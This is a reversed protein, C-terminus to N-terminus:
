FMELRYEIDVQRGAVKALSGSITSRSIIGYAPDFTDEDNIRLGDLYISSAGSSKATAVIGVRNIATGDPSGIPNLLMNNLSISMIKNGTTTNPSFTAEYYDNASSYFKVKISSINADAQYYALSLTDNVSYGSIDLANLDVHYEKSSSQSASITMFYQGIRPSHSSVSQVMTPSVGNSDFWITNDEFDSIFKSDYFNQSKSSVPYLGIEDIIGVVQQPITSKYIVSYAFGGSGDSQINTSGFDVPLRYFEFGLRSNSDSLEYESSTAIGLAIEKKNFSVNGAMFNTLFRKGFKTILNSSRAIENGNEYFIYTGKIM